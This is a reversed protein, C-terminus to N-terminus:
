SECIIVENYVDAYQAAIKQADFRLINSAGEEILESRYQPDNILRLLGSRINEPNDPDVLCAGRGAVEKMPSRNSTIVPKRMAQAEIIPLGFGEYTSCMTLIDANRYEEVIKNQGLEIDNEYVIDSSRLMDSIRDDLRGIIRLKCNIGRIAHILNRLNKNEATGIQLIVPCNQDFPKVADPEFGDILPNEIVRIKAKDTSVFKLIEDKTSQSIATVFRLRQLPLKLFLWKLVFRRLGKRRHLFVLDHVTLVTKKKPMRLAIYHIQGTIHYIDAPQPRFFLLNMLIGFIGTGFPMKQVEIEFRDGPLDKGVQQFVREISVSASPKREVFLVKYRM